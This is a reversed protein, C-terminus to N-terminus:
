GPMAHPGSRRRRTDFCAPNAFAGLAPPSSSPRNHPRFVQGRQPPKNGPARGSASTALRRKRAPRRTTHGHDAACPRGHRKEINRARECKKRRLAAATGGGGRRLPVPRAPFFRRDRGCRCLMRNQRHHMSLGSRRTARRRAQTDARRRLPARVVGAGGGSRRSPRRCSGRIAKLGEPCRGSSRLFM